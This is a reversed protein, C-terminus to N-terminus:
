IDFFIFEKKHDFFDIFLMVRVIVKLVIKFKSETFYRFDSGNQGYVRAGRNRRMDFKGKRSRIM